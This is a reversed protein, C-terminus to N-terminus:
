ADMAGWVHGSAHVICRRLFNVHRIIAATGAVAASPNEIGGEVASTEQSALLCAQSLCPWGPHRCTNSSYSHILRTV